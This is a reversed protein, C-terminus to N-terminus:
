PRHGPEVPLPLGLMDGNPTFGGGDVDVFIPNSVATPVSTEQDPGVVRGLQGGEDTTAVIIHSDKELKIRMENDFKVTGDGFMPGHARRTYNLTEVPRGNVFVQVRNVNLWNPCEVHVKLRIDASAAVLDEGPGATKDGSSAVVTMFPGNTVVVQGKELAHCIDMLSAQAPDDTSSRVYNRLWGSGHFNWHADTNVVGPIRYGLNLLQMWNVITNGRDRPGGEGVTLDAFITQPPHVEMVDAFYFMKRFGEDPVGDLDRDGIMQAINPHNIQVVKDSGDDWMALREIQIEPHADIVPAGSDQTRDRRILPFANQHNIPLPNGTLEMGSCTLVRHVAAFHKLHPEYTSIRQHETCPIFELHEALLNLVRGRQSATNDGSPTSHSHLEASLWGATNVSRELTASLKTTMGAVVDIVKAIADYEPGHSILVVYRGPLLAVRVQGDHTYWLNRVGHVASDPGFNPDPVGQGYFAIKCPVGNGHSDTITGELYGPEPLTIVVTNVPDSIPAAVQHELRGDAAVRFRYPGLPLETILKGERNTRGSGSTGDAADIRITASAARAATRDGVVMHVQALTEGRLRRAIAQVNLSNAAPFIRREFILWTEPEIVLADGGTAPAYLLRVPRKEEPDKNRVAFKDDAPQVGYAQQWFEDHCWWLNLTADHGFKFEGDARVQDELEMQIPKDTPNTILSRVTLFDDGEALEYGVIIELGAAQAATTDEVPVARFAIRCAGDASKFESPWEVPGELRYAGGHPYFASLQDNQAKRRTFDILAGGVNKVTMNAHRTDVAKAVIAILRDSVLAHDGYIADVEKGAPVYSEWNAEDLEVVEAARLCAAASLIVAITIASRCINFM